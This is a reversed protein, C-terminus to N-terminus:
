TGFYILHYASIVLGAFCLRCCYVSIYKCFWICHINFLYHVTGDISPFRMNDTKYM